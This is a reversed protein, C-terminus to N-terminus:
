IILEGSIPIWEQLRWTVLNNTIMPDEKIIAIAEEFSNAEIILLGGGGPAKSKNVLYGSSIKKGQIKLNKVWSKHKDIILRRDKELLALTKETFQETKIFWSM